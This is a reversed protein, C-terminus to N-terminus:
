DDQGFAARLQALLEGEIVYRGDGLPQARLIVSRALPVIREPDLRFGGNEHVDLQPRTALRAERLHVRLQDLKWDNTEIKDLWEVQGDPPLAALEAHMSHAVTPRRRTRDAWKSAVWRYNQLTHYARGTAEMAQGMKEGFKDDGFLLWDGIWWKSADHFNGLRAGLKEFNRYNIDPDLVLAAPHFEVGLPAMDALQRLDLQKTASM